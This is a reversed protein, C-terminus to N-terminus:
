IKSSRTKSNGSQLELIRIGQQYCEEKSCNDNILREGMEMGNFYSMDKRKKGEFYMKAKYLKYIIKWLSSKNNKNEYYELARNRGMLITRWSDTHSLKDHHHLIYNKKDSKWLIDFGEWLVKKAFTSEECYMFYHEPFGGVQLFLACDVLIASGHAESIKKLNDDIVTTKPLIRILRLLKAYLYDFTHKILGKKTVDYIDPTVVACNDNNKIVDLINVVLYEGILETDCNLLLAYKINNSACYKVAINNGGAYGYNKGTQLYELKNGYIGKLTNLSNDTSDNDILLIKFNCGKQSLCSEICIKSKEFSNYNLICIAIDTVLSM